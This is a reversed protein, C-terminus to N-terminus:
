PTHIAREYEQVWALQEATEPVSVGRAAAVATTADQVSKGHSILICSAIMPARGYAMRCHVVISKGASWLQALSSIASLIERERAPTGRDPIPIHVFELNLKRSIEAERGLELYSEEEEELLSVVVDFGQQAVSALDDDLWDGGRPRAMIALKAPGLEDIIYINATM